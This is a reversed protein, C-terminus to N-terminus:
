GGFLKDNIKNNVKATTEAFESELRDNAIQGASLIAAGITSDYLREFFSRGEFDGPEVSTVDPNVLGKNPQLQQSTRSASAVKKQSENNLGKIAGAGPTNDNSGFLIGKIFDNIGNTVGDIFDEVLGGIGGELGGVQRFLLNGVPDFIPAFREKEFDDMQVEFEPSILVKEFSFDLQLEQLESSSYDNASQTFSNLTPNIFHTVSVKGGSYKYFDIRDILYKDRHIDLGASGPNWLGNNSANQDAMPLTTDLDQKFGNLEDSYGRGDMYHYNHYISLFRMWNDHIDDHVTLALNGYELGTQSIRKRNYQNLVQNRYTIQPFQFTKILNSLKFHESIDLNLIGYNPIVNVFYAFSQRPPTGGGNRFHTGLQTQAHRPGALYAGTSVNHRSRFEM